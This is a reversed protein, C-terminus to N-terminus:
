RVALKRSQSGATTAVNVVYVGPQLASTDLTATDGQAAAALVKAGSVSYVDVSIRDSGVWAVEYSGDGLPRIVLNQDKDDAGVGDISASRKIALKLGALPDLKGNGWRRGKIVDSTNVYSDKIATEAM